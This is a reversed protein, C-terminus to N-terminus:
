GAKGRLEREIRENEEKMAEYDVPSNSFLLGHEGQGSALMLDWIAWVLADMRNPSPNETSQKQGPVFSCMEDELAPFAGVHHVRGQEYLASIPEARQQKGRSAHLMKFPVEKRVTRITHEVMEGGFNVEAVIRDAGLRDLMAVARRGWEAPSGNLSGDMLVYYHGNTGYAAGVIGTEHGPAKSGQPDVAAVVRVFDPLIPRGQDDLQVRTDDIGPVGDKTGLSWLAGEVEELLEAMAEQRWMRTGKMADLVNEVWSPALNARNEYSSGAVTITSPAAKIKKLTKIPRPTTTILIHPESERVGYTLNMWAEKAYQWAAFEELWAYDGSFGRFEEPNAGSRIIGEVGNPWVLLRDSSFYKIDPYNTLLGGRGRLAFTNIDAPTRGAILVQDKAACRTRAMLDIWAAGTRTKGFGRGALLLWVFWDDGEPQRQKPRARDKILTLGSEEEVYLRAPDGDFDPDPNPRYWETEYEPPSMLAATLAAERALSNNM